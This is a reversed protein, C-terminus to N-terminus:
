FVIPRGVLIAADALARMKTVFDHILQRGERDHVQLSGLDSLEKILDDIRGPEIMDGCHSGSCIVQSIFPFRDAMGSLRSRLEGVMALNGLWESALKGNEHECAESMMWVDFAIQVELDSNECGLLGDEYRIPCSGEPPPSRLRGREYCDCYVCADLGL